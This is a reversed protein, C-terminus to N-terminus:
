RLSCTRVNLAYEAIHSSTAVLVDNFVYSRACWPLALPPQLWLPLVTRGVRMEESHWVDHSRDAWRNGVAVPRGDDWFRGYLAQRDFLSLVTVRLQQDLLPSIHEAVDSSADLEFRRLRRIPELAIAVIRTDLDNINTRADLLVTRDDLVNRAGLDILALRKVVRLGLFM